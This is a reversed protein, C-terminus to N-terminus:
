WPPSSSRTARGAAMVPRLVKGATQGASYNLRADM